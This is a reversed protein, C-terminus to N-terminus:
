HEIENEMIERLKKLGRHIDAKCTGEPRGTIEAIEHIGFGVVHRLVVAERQIRTLADLRRQWAATDPPEFDYGGPGTAEAVLTPRRARDRLHNRGLNLAITWVWPELRLERIRQPPYESLARYTRIFAEQSLDEAQHGDGTMRRLGWYLRPSMREVLRPFAADLNRALDRVLDDM